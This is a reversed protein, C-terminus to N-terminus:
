SRDGSASSAGLAGPAGDSSQGDRGGVVGDDAERPSGVGPAEDAEGTILRAGRQWTVYQWLWDLIVAVRNRFGILFFIHVGAWLLWALYGGFTHGRLTAVAKGRGITALAGKDRYRFAPRDTEGGVERRILRGVFRGMQLAGPAM